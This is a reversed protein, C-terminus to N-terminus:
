GMAPDVDPEALGPMAPNNSQGLSNRGLWILMPVNRGKAVDYQWANIDSERQARGQDCLRAFLGPDESICDLLIAIQAPRMGMRSMKRILEQASTDM